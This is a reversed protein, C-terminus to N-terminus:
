NIRKFLRGIHRILKNLFQFDERQQTIIIINPWILLAKDEADYFDVLTDDLDLLITNYKMNEHKNEESIYKYILGSRKGQDM